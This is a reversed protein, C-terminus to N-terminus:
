AAFRLRNRGAHKAAYLAGDAAAVVAEAADGAHLEALGFSATIRFPGKPGLMPQAEIARRLRECVREAAALASGDFLIGFEEGGLRAVADGARVERLCVEALTVLAADGAPHGLADNVAKFHDIDLLALVAPRGRGAAAIAQDLQVMFPRRNALGTLPDTRAELELEREVSKRHTVDRVASVVGSVTGDQGRVARTNTEFWASTGDDRCAEYEVTFNREPTALAQRHVGAVAARHQEDILEIANRGVLADPDYGGLTRVSPSAFRIRGLPDLSLLVDSSHDALLRLAAESERLRNTLKRQRSLTAATPLTMLFLTGLYFQFFQLRFAADGVVLRIPGHGAVTLGGGITAVLILAAAAGLRGLRFTALMVPLAPLFLLPQEDQTFVVVTVVVVLGLTAGVVTVTWRDLTRWLGRTEPLMWLVAMPAAILTGVGHGFWWDRWTVAIPLGFALWATVAGVFGSVAPAVVGAALTFLMVSRVSEFMRRGAHSRRLLAAAVIAEVINATSFGLAAVASGRLVWTVVFCVAFCGAAPGLWRRPRSTGLVAFLVGNAVWLLAIGNSLRTLEVAAIALVAYAAM